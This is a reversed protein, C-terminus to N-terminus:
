RQDYRTPLSLSVHPAKHARTARTSKSHRRPAPRPLPRGEPRPLPLSLTMRKILEISPRTNPGASQTPRGGTRPPQKNPIFFHNCHKRNQEQWPVSIHHHHRSCVVCPSTKPPSIQAAHLAVQRDLVPFRTPNARGRRRFGNRPIWPPPPPAYALPSAALALPLLFPSSSRGVYSPWPYLSFSGFYRCGSTGWGRLQNSVM